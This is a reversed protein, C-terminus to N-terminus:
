LELSHNRSSNSEENRTIKKEFSKNKQHQKFVYSINKMKQKKNQFNPNKFFLSPKELFSVNM